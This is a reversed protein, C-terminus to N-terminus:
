NRLSPGPTSDRDDGCSKRSALYGGLLFVAVTPLRWMLARLKAESDFAALMDSYAEDTLRLYLDVVFVYGVACPVVAFLWRRRFIYGLALGTIGAIMWGPIHIWVLGWQAAFWDSFGHDFFWEAVPRRLGLDFWLPSVFHVDVFWLGVGAALSSLAILFRNRFRHRSM